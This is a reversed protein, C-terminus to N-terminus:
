LLKYTTQQTAGGRETRTWTGSRRGVTMTGETVVGNEIQKWPGDLVGEKNYTATLAVGGDADYTTWTGTRRDDVFQGTLWPKGDRLEQYPGDARGRKYTASSVLKGGDFKKVLGDLKGYKWHQELELVGLENWERWTGHKHDSYYHGEVVVKGRPTLEQYIGQMQGDVIAQKTAVKRNSHYTLMTGTGATITFRGLENGRSDYYVFEGDPKGDTYSGSFTLKNETWEFWAGTKKGDAFDGEREKNNYHDFWSWTGTKKGHDYTGQVRPIKKDRWLTYAGDLKGADDYNEDVVLLWFQWIQRADHRVGNTFTEEIHLTNKAGVLKAGDYRNGYLKAIVALQGDHDYVKIPGYSIGRLLTRERYLPGDDFWTKETGTGLRLKYEGIVDGTARRQTWTGDKVGGVYAGTEAVAGGPYHRTWAGDLKGNKYSGEIAITNDPFLTVFPGERVNDPRVCYFTPEPAPAAIPTTTDGCVLKPLEPAAPLGADVVPPAPAEVVQMSVVKQESPATTNAAVPGTPGSGCAATATLIFPLTYSRHM